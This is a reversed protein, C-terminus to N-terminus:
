SLLAPWTQSAVLGDVSLGRDSQFAMVADRTQKGFDGDVTVTYGRATLLEQVVTVPDGSAGKELRPTLTDWTTDDVIGSVTLGQQAQWQRVARETAAGFDGDVHARVGHATLLGQLAEVVYGGDGRSLPYFRTFEPEPASAAPAEPPPAPSPEATVTVIVVPTPSPSANPSPQASHTVSASTSHVPIATDGSGGGLLLTLGVAAGLGVVGLGVGIAVRASRREPPPPSAPEQLGAYPDSGFWVACQECLEAATERGCQRCRNM